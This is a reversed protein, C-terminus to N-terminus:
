ILHAKLSHVIAKPRFELGATHLLNLRLGRSPKRVMRGPVALSRKSPDAPQLILTLPGFPVKSAAEATEESFSNLLVVATPKELLICADACSLALRRETGACPAFARSGEATAAYIGKRSRRALTCGAAVVRLPRTQSLKSNGDGGVEDATQQTGDCLATLEPAIRSVVASRAEGSVSSTSRCIIQGAGAVETLKDLKLGLQSSLQSLASGTMSVFHQGSHRHRKERENDGISSGAECPSNGTTSIKPTPGPLPAVKRLLAVFFGGMNALHPLLRLCRGLKLKKRAHKEDPPWMSPLFRRKLAKPM